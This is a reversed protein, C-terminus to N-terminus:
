LSFASYVTHGKCRCLSSLRGFIGAQTVSISKACRWKPFVFIARYSKFVNKRSVIGLRLMQHGNCLLLIFIPCFRQMKLRYVDKSGLRLGLDLTLRWGSDSNILFLQSASFARPDQAGFPICNFPCVRFAKCKSNMRVEVNPQIQSVTINNKRKLSFLM